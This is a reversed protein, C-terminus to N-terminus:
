HCTRWKPGANSSPIGMRRDGAVTIGAGHDATIIIMTNDFLGNAKLTELLEGLQRDFDVASNAYLRREMSQLEPSSYLGDADSGVMHAGEVVPLRAPYIERGERDVSWPAHTRISHWFAFLSSAPDEARARNIGAIM